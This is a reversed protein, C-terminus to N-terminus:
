TINPLHKQFYKALVVDEKKTTPHILMHDDYGKAGPFKLNAMLM